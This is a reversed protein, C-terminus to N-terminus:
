ILKFANRIAYELANCYSKFCENPIATRGTEMLNVSAWWGFDSEYYVSIELKHKERFWRVLQQYLPASFWDKQAQIAFWDNSRCKDDLHFIGQLYYGLCLENFGKEKALLALPYPIFEKQM